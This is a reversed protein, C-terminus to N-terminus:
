PVDPASVKLLTVTAPLLELPPRAAADEGLPDAHGRSQQPGHQGAVRGADPALQAEGAPASVANVDEPPLTSVRQVHLRVWGVSLGFVLGWSPGSASLPPGVCVRASGAPLAAM